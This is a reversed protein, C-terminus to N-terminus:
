LRGRASMTRTGGERGGEIKGKNGGTKRQGEEKGEASSDAKEYWFYTIVSVESLFARTSFRERESKFNVM